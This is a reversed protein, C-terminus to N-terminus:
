QEVRHEGSHSNWEEGEHATLRWVMGLEDGPGSGRGEERVRPATNSSRHLRSSPKSMSLLVGPSPDDVGLGVNVPYSNFVQSRLLEQVRNSGKTCAQTGQTQKSSRNSSNLIGGVM